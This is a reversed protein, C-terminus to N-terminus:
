LQMGGQRMETEREALYEEYLREAEPIAKDYWRSWQGSKDGGM